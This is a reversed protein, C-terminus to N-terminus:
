HFNEWVVMCLEINSIDGVFVFVLDCIAEKIRWCSYWLEAAYDEGVELDLWDSNLDTWMISALWKYALQQSVSWVTYDVPNLGSSNPSWLDAAIFTPPEATIDECSLHVLANKQHFIHLRRCVQNCFADATLAPCGGTHLSGTQRRASCKTHHCDNEVVRSM